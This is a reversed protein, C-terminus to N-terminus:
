RRCLQRFDARTRLRAGKGAIRASAAQDTVLGSITTVDEESAITMGDFFEERREDLRGRVQIVDAAKDTKIKEILRVGKCQVSEVERADTTGMLCARCNIM